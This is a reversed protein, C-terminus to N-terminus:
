AKGPPHRPLEKEFDISKPSKILSIKEKAYAMLEAELDPGAVFMDRQTSGGSLSEEGMEANHVGFVPVV